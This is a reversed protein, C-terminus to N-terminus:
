NEEVEANEEVPNKEKAPLRESLENILKAILATWGTQHSAGLGYGKDGHFYEYFLVLDKNEPLSYFWNEKGHLRRHNQDDLEFLSINRKILEHVIDTLEMFNGSGTPYEIRLSGDYFEGYKKLSQIIVYNIPM